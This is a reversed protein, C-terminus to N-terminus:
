VPASNGSGRRPITTAIRLGGLTDIHPLVGNRANFLALVVPTAWERSYGVFQIGDTLFYLAEVHPWVYTRWYRSNSRLPLLFVCQRGSEIGRKLWPEINSFPPNVYNSQGWETTLGDFSPDLPTPDFDFAFHRHLDDYFCRPTSM